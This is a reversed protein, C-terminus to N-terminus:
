YNVSRWNELYMRLTEEKNPLKMIAERAGQGLRNQLDKDTAVGEMANKLEELDGVPVILGSENNKIVEGACGVDTMIIPLGYSAAEIIVMGWGEYNSTLLFVDANKYYEELDNQWGIFKIQEIGVAEKKLVDEFPGAGVIQLEINKNIKLLEKFASIQLSINKIEVLRGVTLFVFREKNRSIHYTNHTIHIYIPVVSIKNEATGFEDVLRKKLRESVARIVGARPIVFRAIAKRIGSYKELGHIQLELGIGFERALRWGLLALYYQDQVTIVDFKKERILKRALRCTKFLQIIKNAGGSGYVTVRDSLGQSKKESDPVIVIYEDVLGGYELLRNAVSSQPDLVLNDLGLSLIRM